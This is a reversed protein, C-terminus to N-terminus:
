RDPDVGFLRYLRREVPLLVRDGPAGAGGFVRAMYAGLLPTTVLVLGLLVAAQLWNVASVATGALRADRPRARRLPRHRAPRRPRPDRVVCGRDCGDDSASRCFCPM